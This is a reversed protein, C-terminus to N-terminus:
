VKSQDRAIGAQEEVENQHKGERTQRQRRQTKDKTRHKSRWRHQEVQQQDVTTVDLQLTTRDSDAEPCRLRPTIFLHAALPNQTGVSSEGATCCVEGSSTECEKVM